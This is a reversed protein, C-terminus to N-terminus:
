IDCKAEKKIFRKDQLNKFEQTAIRDFEKKFDLNYMSMDEEIKQRWKVKYLVADRNFYPCGICFDPKSFNYYKCEAHLVVDLKGKNSLICNANIM